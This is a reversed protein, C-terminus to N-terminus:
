NNDIFKLFSKYKSITDEDWKSFVDFNADFKIVGMKILMGKVINYQTTKMFLSLHKIAEKSQLDITITCPLERSM